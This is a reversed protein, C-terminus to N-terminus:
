ITVLDLSINVLIRDAHTAVGIKQVQEGAGIPATESLTNGTTGTITLYIDAGVTWAWTDDRVVGNGIFMEVADGDGKTELAMGIAPMKTADTADCLYVEGDANQYVFDGFNITEGATMSIKPGSATHDADPTSDLLIGNTTFRAIEAGDGIISVQGTSNQGIGTNGDARNPLLTAVSASAASNILLGGNANLVNFNGNVTIQDDFRYGFGQTNTFSWYADTPIANPVLTLAFTESVDDGADSDADGIIKFSPQVDDINSADGVQFNGSEDLVLAAGGGNLATTLRYTDTGADADMYVDFERAGGSTVGQFSLHYSNAGAAASVAKIDLETAASQIIDDGLYRVLIDGDEDWEYTTSIEYKVTTPTPTGPDPNATRIIKIWYGTSGDAAGPDGDATWLGTITSLEWRISGSQQFGDTEDSPFFETWADAATNYWFTPMVSKTGPTGMIVELSSFQATHGIYVEDSNVVFIESGDVGDVWVTGGTTKEAAYETQSPTAPTGIEQRIPGVDDNTALAWVEGSPTGGSVAVDISHYVSAANQSSVDALVDMGIYESGAVNPLVTNMHFTGEEIDMARYGFPMKAEFGEMYLNAGTPVVGTFDVEVGIVKVDDASPDLNGGDINFGKWSGSATSFVNVPTIDIISTTTAGTPNIDILVDTGTMDLEDVLMLEKDFYYGRSQTSYFGWYASTPTADPNLYLSLTESVDDGVDSDADGVISFTPTTEDVLVGLQLDTGDFLLQSESVIAGAGDDTLIENNSGAPAVGGVAAGVYTVVAAETPVADDSNGAMTGDISIENIDTGLYFSLYQAIAADGFVALDGGEIQKLTVDDITFSGETDTGSVLSIVFDGPPNKTIFYITHTGATIPVNEAVTAISTTITAVADGDFATTVAITYTFAYFMNEEAVIVFSANPQTLTSTQNASWVFAANGGTDDFDNTVDWEAHTVFDVEDLTEAGLTAEDIVIVDGSTLSTPVYLNGNYWGLTNFLETVQSHAMTIFLLAFLIRKM